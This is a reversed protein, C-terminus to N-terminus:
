NLGQDRANIDREGERKTETVRVEERELLLLFFFTRLQLNKKFLHRPGGVGAEYM